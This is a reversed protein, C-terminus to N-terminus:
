RLMGEKIIEEGNGKFYPISHSTNASSALLHIEGKRIGCAKALPNRSFRVYQIKRYRVILYTRAFYGKALKLFDNGALSGETLYKLIMEAALCIELVAAGAAAWIAYEPMASACVAACAAVIVTYILAPVSWAAWVSSPQREVAAGAADLFEPLLASLKENLKAETSYLILFSNKEDNDDGMGVNVIEAMYRKGLRAVFSQKLRLAQIKDVPVTYEVKKFFGYRIYIKGGRRKARFDYYRVFDKVTDWLASAVILAAVLVGSAAGILTQAADPDGVIQFVTRVAGAIGLIIVAVSLINVSFFGHQLIDGLDSRVDYDEAEGADGAPMMAEGRLAEGPAGAAAQQASFGKGAGSEADRIRRTVEQKFALAEAKKLVIKVDTSDATSRSNTDLKVKCTGLLMEFLNQETNINSINRIGITNKKKNLTNREIVVANDQLSIYTKSWVAFQLAIIVLFFLILGLNVLLWKGDMFELGTEMLEDINELLSPVLVILLAILLGGTQEAIISIHNRFRMGQTKETQKKETKTEAQGGSPNEKDKVNM